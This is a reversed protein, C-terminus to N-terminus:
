FNSIGVVRWKKGLDKYFNYKANAFYKKILKALLTKQRPDFELLIVKPKKELNTVQELLKRIEKLGNESTFLAEKPEFKLGITQASSNNKWEKWGYPLNAVIIDPSFKINSLLNSKIFKVKAKHTKANQKAIYIAKVFIDSAFVKTKTNKALSIAICGSGTGVDLVNKAGYKKISEITKEVILETEPRPILTAKTVKFRLGYFDKYGLIYAIPEGKRRRSVLKVLKNNQDRTLNVTPNLYLFEKSKKLIHALLIEIEVDSYKKILEFITM